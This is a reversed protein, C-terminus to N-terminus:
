WATVEILLDCDGNGLDWSATEIDKVQKLRNRQSLFSSFYLLSYGALPLQIELSRCYQSYSRLM